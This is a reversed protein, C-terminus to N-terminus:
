IIIEDHCDSFRVHTFYRNFTDTFNGGLSNQSEIRLYQSNYPSLPPLGYVKGTRAFNVLLKTFKTVIRQDREDTVYNLSSQWYKGDNKVPKHRFQGELSYCETAITGTLSSPWLVVNVTKCVLGITPGGNNNLLRTYFLFLVLTAVVTLM